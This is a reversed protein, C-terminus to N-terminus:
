SRRKRSQRRTRAIRQRKSPSRAKPRRTRARRSQRRRKKKIRRGGKCGEFDTEPEEARPIGYARLDSRIAMPLTSLMSDIERKVSVTEKYSPNSIDIKRYLKHIHSVVDEITIDALTEVGPGSQTMREDLVSQAIGSIYSGAEDNWVKICDPCVAGIQDVTLGPHKALCTNCLVRLLEESEETEGGAIRRLEDNTKGRMIDHLLVDSSPSAM